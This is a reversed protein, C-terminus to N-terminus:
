GINEEFFKLMRAWADRAAEPNYLSARTDNMFAHGADPYVVVDWPQKVGALKTKLAAVDTNPILGDQGGFFALMPCSLKDAVEIPAHPKKTMDRGEAAHMSGQDYSLMGYFPAVADVKCGGYGALHTYMGGMCFGLMGVKKGALTPLAHLADVGQQLQELVARDSLGRMFPGVGQMELKQKHKFLEVCLAAYGAEALRDCLGRYHDYLGWVDHVLVLGARPPEHPLALYGLQAATYPM